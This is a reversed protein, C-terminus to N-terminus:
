AAVTAAAVESWPGKEGRTSVWRLAYCATKGAEANLAVPRHPAAPTPARLILNDRRRHSLNRRHTWWELALDNKRHISTSASSRLQPRATPAYM